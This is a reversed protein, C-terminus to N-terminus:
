KGSYACKFFNVESQVIKPIEQQLLEHLSKNDHRYIWQKKNAHYDYRKPGSTPSSLWIQLNPTQRNIVYTGFENGFHVTLVGDQCFYFLDMVSFLISINIVKRINFICKVFLYM